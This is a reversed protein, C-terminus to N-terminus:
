DFADQIYLAARRFSVPQTSQVRLTFPLHSPLVRKVTSTVDLSLTRRDSRLPGDAVSINNLDIKCGIEDPGRSDFNFFRLHARLVRKGRHASLTKPGGSWEREARPGPWELMHISTSQEGMLNIQMAYRVQDPTAKSGLLWMLKTLAAEPTMDVGCVVGAEMLHSNAEFAGLQVLGVICQTVNVVVIKRKYANELQHVFEPETPANGTGFTKLVVGKLGELSFVKGLLDPRFGPYLDLSIVNPEYATNIHFDGSDSSGFPHIRDTHIEVFHGTTAVVPYNPSDFGSYRDAGLYRARNGRFLSSGFYLGVMNLPALDTGDSRGAALCISTVLNQTADTRAESISRQAGTLIVPKELNVLFFSLASATYAMTDTGHLIVFGDYNGYEREILEALAVCREMNMDASDKPELNHSNDADTFFDVRISERESIEQILGGTFYTGLEDAGGPTLGVNEDEHMSIAGGTNIM